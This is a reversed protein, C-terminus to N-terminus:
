TGGNKPLDDTSPLQPMPRKRFNPWYYPMKYCEYGNENGLRVCEDPYLGHLKKLKRLERKRNTRIECKGGDSIVVMTLHEM